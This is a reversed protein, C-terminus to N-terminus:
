ADGRGFSRLRPIKRPALDPEAVGQAPKASTAKVLNSIQAEINSDSGLREKENEKEEEEKEAKELEEKSPSLSKLISAFTKGQRKSQELRNVGSRVAM